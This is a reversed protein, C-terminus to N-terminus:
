VFYEGVRLGTGIDACLDGRRVNAVAVQEADVGLLFPVLGHQRERYRALM